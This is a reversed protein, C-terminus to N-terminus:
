YEPIKADSKAGNHRKSHKKVSRFSMYSRIIHNHSARRHGFNGSISVYTSIAWFRDSNRFDAINRFIVRKQSIECIDLHAMRTHFIQFIDFIAFIM